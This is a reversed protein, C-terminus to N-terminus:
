AWIRMSRKGPKSPRKRVGLQWCRGGVPIGSEAQRIVYMAQEELLTSWKVVGSRECPVALAVM